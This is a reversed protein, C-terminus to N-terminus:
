GSRKIPTAKLKTRGNEVAVRFRVDECGYKERIATRQQEVLRDLNKRTLGAVDEGCSQRASIYADFLDTESRAAPERAAPAEGDKADALDRERLNAKFVHRQYTGEEMERVVQDWRRRLAFFKACLNNFRFRLATNQIGTNSYRAVIKQVDGRLQVPERPRSGLFYQEYQFSVQKLKIDLQQLDDAVNEQPSASMGEQM